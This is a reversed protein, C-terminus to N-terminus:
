EANLQKKFQLPTCNAIKKFASFFSSKSNFGSEYGIGEFTLDNRSKILKQAERIRYENVYQAFGHLYVENLVRSLIHRQIDSLQALDELKLRPNMYLKQDEMLKDVKELLLLGDELPQTQPAQPGISTNQNFARWLLFYFSFSFILSGWIYTFGRIYLAFQYCLTIFIVGLMIMLLYQERPSLKQNKSVVKIFLDKGVYLGWCLFFMWIAYIGKIFWTNWIEPYTRYSWITGLAIITILLGWLLMMDLKRNKEEPKIQFKIFLYFFPGIFLCASLGIQLILKDLEPEFFVLVSKGIRISLAFLLGGFYFDGPSRKQKMFLYAGLVAGNVVGLGAFLFLITTALNM